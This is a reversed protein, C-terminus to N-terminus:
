QSVASALFLLPGTADRSPPMPVVRVGHFGASSLWGRVDEEAFGPWVHGMEEAYSPGRDHARMDM